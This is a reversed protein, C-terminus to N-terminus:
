TTIREVPRWSPSTRSIGAKRLRRTIYLQSSSTWFSTPYLLEQSKHHHLLSLFTTPSAIPDAAHVHVQNVGLWLTQVHLEVLSAVHDLGIWNMFPLSGTLPRVAAKGAVAALIQSHSLRVAKLRGTSGSTLMLIATASGGHQLHSAPGNPNMGMVQIDEAMYVHIGLAEDFM